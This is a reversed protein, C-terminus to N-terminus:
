APLRDLGAPVGVDLANAVMSLMTYQGVVYVVEVLQAADYRAALEAWTTDTITTTAHLEDAARLLAAEHGTWGEGTAVRGVEDDTLGADRAYGTHEGWEFASRGNWSARLALLEHDRKPLTGQLALAAAWGLFPGLLADPHALAAVTGPPDDGLLALTAAATESLPEPRALRGIRWQM